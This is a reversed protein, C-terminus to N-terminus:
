GDVGPSVECTRERDTIERITASRRDRPPAPTSPERWSQFTLGQFLSLVLLTVNDALYLSVVDRTLLRVALIAFVGTVLNVVFFALTIGVGELMRRVAPRLGSRPLGLGRAGVLYAGASTLGVLLLVFPEAM